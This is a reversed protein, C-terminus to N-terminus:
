NEWLHVMLLPVWKKQKEADDLNEMRKLDTRAIVEPSIEDLQQIKM